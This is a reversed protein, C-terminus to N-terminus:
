DCGVGDGDRHLEFVDAGVVYVRGTYLPGNGSGGACDYDGGHPALCAGSYSQHCGPQPTPVAESFGAREPGWTYVALIAPFATLLWVIRM